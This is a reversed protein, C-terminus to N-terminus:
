KQWSPRDLWGGRSSTHLASGDGGAYQLQLEQIRKERYSGLELENELEDLLDDEQEELSRDDNTPRLDM